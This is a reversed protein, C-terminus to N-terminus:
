HHPSVRATPVAFYAFWAFVSDIPPPVVSESTPYLGQHQWRMRMEAYKAHKATQVAPNLNLVSLNRTGRPWPQDATLTSTHTIVLWNLIALLFQFQQRVALWGKATRTGLHTSAASRNTCRPPRNAATSPVGGRRRRARSRCRAAIGASRAARATACVWGRLISRDPRRPDDAKRISRLAPWIASLFFPPCCGAAIGPLSRARDRHSSRGSRKPVYSHNGKDSRSDRRGACWVPSQPRFPKVRPAM